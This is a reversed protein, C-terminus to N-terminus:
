IKIRTFCACHSSINYVTGWVIYDWGWIIASYGSQANVSLVALPAMAFPLLLVLVFIFMRKRRM